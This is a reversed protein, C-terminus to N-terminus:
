WFGGGIRDDVAGLERLMFDVQSEHPASVLPQFGVGVSLAAVLMRLVTAHDQHVKGRDCVRAGSPGVEVTLSLLEERLRAHPFLALRGEALAHSLLPWQEAHSKATPQYVTVPLGLQQLRQVTAVGQWSEVQVNVLRFRRSLDVLCQEVSALEVPRRKSGQFTVLTDVFMTGDPESHAVGVVTPDHTLGVDVACHYDRGSQQQSQESWGCTLARDVDEASVFADAADVWQNQHERAYQSAVLIRRQRDLFARSVLPSPNESTHWWLCERDGGEALMRVDWLPGSQKRGVTSTLLCLPDSCSAQAALLSSWLEADKSWGVEDYLVVDPHLGRSSTHEAAKVLWRAGTSPVLLSSAQVDIADSLAANAKIVRKAHDVIVRAGAEDLAVSLVEAGPVTVLRWLGVVAGAFSKGNGRPTSVACVRHVFRGARRRCAQALADRQWPYLAVGVDRAFAVVDHLADTM